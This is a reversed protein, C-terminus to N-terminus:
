NFLEGSGMRSGFGDLGCKAVMVLGDMNWQDHVLGLGSKVALVASIDTKCEASTTCKVWLDHEGKQKVGCHHMVLIASCPM